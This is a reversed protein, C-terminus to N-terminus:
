RYFRKEKVYNMEEKRGSAADMQRKIGDLWLSVKVDSTNIGSDVLSCLIMDNKTYEALATMIEEAGCVTAGGYISIMRVNQLNAKSKLCDFWNMSDSVWFDDATFTHAEFGMIPSSRTVIDHWDIGITQNYSVLAALAQLAEKETSTDCITTFGSCLANDVVHISLGKGVREIVFDYKGVAEKKELLWGNVFEIEGKYEDMGIVALSSKEELM